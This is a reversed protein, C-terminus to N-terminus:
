GKHIELMKNKEWYVKKIKEEQKKKEINNMDKTYEIYRKTLDNEIEKEKLIFFEKEKIQKAIL